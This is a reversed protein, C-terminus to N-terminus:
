NIVAKILPVQLNLHKLVQFMSGYLEQLSRAHACTADAWSDESVWGM